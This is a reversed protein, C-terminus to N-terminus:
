QFIGSWWYQSRYSGIFRNANYYKVVGKFPRRSEM